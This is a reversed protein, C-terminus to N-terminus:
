GIKIMNKGPGANIWSTRAFCDCLGSNANRCPPSPAAYKEQTRWQLRMPWCGVGGGGM